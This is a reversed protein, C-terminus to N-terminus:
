VYAMRVVDALSSTTNQARQNANLADLLEVSGFLLFVMIPAILAFELAALGEHARAFRRLKRMTLGSM